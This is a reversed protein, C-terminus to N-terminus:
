IEHHSCQPCEEVIMGYNIIKDRTAYHNFSYACKLMSITTSGALFYNRAEYDILEHFNSYKDKIYQYEKNKADIIRISKSISKSTQLQHYMMEYSGLYQINTM